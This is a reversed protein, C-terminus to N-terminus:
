LQAVIWKEDVQTPVQAWKPPIKIRFGFKKDVYFGREMKGQGPSASALLIPLLPCAFWALIPYKM